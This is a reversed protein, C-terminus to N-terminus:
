FGERQRRGDLKSMAAGVQAYSTLQSPWYCLEDGRESISPFIQMSQDSPPSERITQGRSKVPWEWWASWPDPHCLSNPFNTSSGPEEATHLQTALHGSAAGRLHARQSKKWSEPLASPQEAGRDFVACLRLVARAQSGQERGGWEEGPAGPLHLCLLHTSVATM